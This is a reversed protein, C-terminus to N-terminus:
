RIGKQYNMVQFLQCLLQTRGCSKCLLTKQKLLYTCNNRLWETQKDSLVLIDPLFQRFEELTFYCYDIETSCLPRMLIIKSNSSTRSFCPLLWSKRCEPCRFTEPLSIIRLVDKEPSVTECDTCSIEIKNEDRVLVMLRKGCKQCKTKVISIFDVRDANKESLVIGSYLTPQSIFGVHLQRGKKNLKYILSFLVDTPDENWAFFPHLVIGKLGYRRDIEEVYKLIEENCGIFKGTKSDYVLFDGYVSKDEIAKELSIPISTREAIPRQVLCTKEFITKGKLKVKLEINGERKPLISCIHYYEAVMEVPINIGDFELEVDPEAFIHVKCPQGILLANERLFVGRVIIEKQFLRRNRVFFRVEYKGLGYSFAKELCRDLEHLERPNTIVLRHVLPSKRVIEMRMVYRDYEKDYFEDLFTTSKKPLIKAPQVPRGYMHEHVIEARDIDIIALSQAKTRSEVGNKEIAFPGIEYESPLVDSIDHEIDM